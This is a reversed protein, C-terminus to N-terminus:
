FPLDDDNVIPPVVRYDGNVLRMCLRSARCMDDHLREDPEMYDDEPHPGPEGKYHPNKVWVDYNTLIWEHDPRHEGVADAEWRMLEHHSPPRNDDDYGWM